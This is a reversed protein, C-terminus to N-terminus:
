LLQGNQAADQMAWFIPAALDDKRQIDFCGCILVNREGVRIRLDMYQRERGQDNAIYATILGMGRATESLHSSMWRIMERGERAMSRRCAQELFRDFEEVDKQEFRTIDPETPDDSADAILLYALEQLNGDEAVYDGEYARFVAGKAGGPDHLDEAHWWWRGPLVISVLNLVEFRDDEAKTFNAPPM